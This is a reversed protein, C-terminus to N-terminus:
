FSFSELKNIKRHIFLITSKYMSFDIFQFTKGKLDGFFDSKLTVSFDPLSDGFKVSTLENVIDIIQFVFGFKQYFLDKFDNFLNNDDPIFLYEFVSQIGNIISNGLEVIANKVM